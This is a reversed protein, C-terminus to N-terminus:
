SKEFIKNVIKRPLALFISALVGKALLSMKAYYEYRSIFPGIPKKKAATLASSECLWFDGDDDLPFFLNFEPPRFRFSFNKTKVSSNKITVSFPKNTLLDAPKTGYIDIELEDATMGIARFVFEGCPEMFSDYLVEKISVPCFNFTPGSRYQAAMSVQLLSLQRKIHTGGSDSCNTSYTQYPYIFNKGTEVMFGQFYKKWSSDPWFKVAQPLCSNRALDAQTKGSYWAKFLVWQERTWCQGWSCAVQMFYTDYGNSMATFPMHAFENFEYSYLAIGAISEENRYYKLAESAYLHFYRDVLLDDELIIVSDYEQTLDGCAIVHERLGLRRQRRILRVALKESRFTEAINVVEPNAEGELSIVLTPCDRYEAADLASLLRKLALPRSYAIVVIAPTM